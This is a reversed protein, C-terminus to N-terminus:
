PTMIQVKTRTFCTFHTRDVNRVAEEEARQLDQTLIQVKSWYLSLTIIGAGATWLHDSHTFCHSLPGTLLGLPYFLVM